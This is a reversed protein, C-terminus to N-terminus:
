ICFSDLLESAASFANRAMACDRRGADRVAQVAVALSPQRGINCEGIRVYQHTNVSRSKSFDGGEGCGIVLGTAIRKHPWNFAVKSIPVAKFWNNIKQLNIMRLLDRKRGDLKLMCTM